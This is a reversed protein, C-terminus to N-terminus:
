FEVVVPCHDSIQTAYLPCRDQWECGDVACAGAAHVDRPIETSLVHDLRSRPCGDDRRWFATCALAETAWTMGTTRAIAALDERDNDSTANFDGLLTVPSGSRLVRAVITQLAAYQQHRIPQNESGAALHVVLVRIKQKGHALEIDLVGKHRGGLRTEDHARTAVHRYVTSDFLVGTRHHDPVPEEYVFQWREGLRAKAEREFVAPDTIEQLAIVPVDVAAIEAFAGEIQREDKPFDEINFSAIRLAPPDDDCTGCSRAAVTALVLLLM